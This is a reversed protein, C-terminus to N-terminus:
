TLPVVMAPQAVSLLAGVVSIGTVVLLITRHPRLYPWLMTLSARREKAASKRRRGPIRPEGPRHRRGAKGPPRGPAEHQTDVPGVSTANSVRAFTIM